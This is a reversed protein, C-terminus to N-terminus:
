QIKVTTSRSYSQQESPCARNYIHIHCMYCLSRRRAAWWEAEQMDTLDKNIKREKEGTAKSQAKRKNMEQKEGVTTARSPRLVSTPDDPNPVVEIGAKRASLWTRMAADM